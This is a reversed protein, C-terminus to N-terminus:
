CIGCYRNLSPIRSTATGQLQIVNLDSAGDNGLGAGKGEKRAAEAHCEHHELTAAGLPREKANVFRRTADPPKKKRPLSAAINASQVEGLIDCFRIRLMETVYIGRLQCMDDTYM